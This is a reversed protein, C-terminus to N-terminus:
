ILEYWEDNKGEIHQYIANALFDAVQVGPDKESDRPYVEFRTRDDLKVGFHQQLSTVFGAQSVGKLPRQDPYVFLQRSERLPCAELLRIVMRVYLLGEKGHLHPPIKSKNMSISYIRPESLQALHRYFYRKFKDTAASAKIEAKARLKKPLKNKRAREMVNALEKHQETAVAAIVLTGDLPNESEDLYIHM